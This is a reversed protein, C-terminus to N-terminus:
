TVGLFGLWVLKQLAAQSWEYIVDRLYKWNNIGQGGKKLCKHGATMFDGRRQMIDNKTNKYTNLKDMYVHLKQAVANPIGLYWLIYLLIFTRCPIRCLVGSSIIVRNPCIFLYVSVFSWYLRSSGFHLRPWYSFSFCQVFSRYEQVSTTLDNHRIIM